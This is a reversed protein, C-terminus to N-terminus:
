FCVLKDAEDKGTVPILCSIFNIQVAPIFIFNLHSWRLQLRLIKARVFFFNLAELPNSGVAEANASCHETNSNNNVVSGHIGM